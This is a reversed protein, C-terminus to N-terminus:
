GHATGYASLFGPFYPQEPPSLARYCGGATGYSRLLAFLDYRAWLVSRLMTFIRTFSHPWQSIFALFRLLVYALLATWVQWRIANKSHGLFASLQLVQKIQKFFAEISWRCKYLDCVSSPAWDLHSTIFTMQRLQGKVEVLAVVRRFRNPYKARSAAGRLVVIDDRLINGV